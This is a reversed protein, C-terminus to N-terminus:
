KINFKSVLYVEQTHRINELRNIDEERQLTTPYSNKIWVIPETMSSQWQIAVELRTNFKFHCWDSFIDKHILAAGKESIWLFGKTLFKPFDAITIACYGYSPNINKQISTLAFSLRIEEMGHNENSRPRKTTDINPIAQQITFSM